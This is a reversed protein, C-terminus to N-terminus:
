RSPVCGTSTSSTKPRVTDAMAERLPSLEHGKSRLTPLSRDCNSIRLSTKRVMSCRRGFNNTVDGGHVIYELSCLSQFTFFHGQLLVAAAFSDGILVQPERVCAVLELVVGAARERM